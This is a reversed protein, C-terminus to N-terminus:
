YSLIVEDYNYENQATLNNLFEAADGFNGEKIYIKTLIECAKIDNINYQITLKLYDARNYTVVFVTLITKNKEIYNTYKTIDKIM